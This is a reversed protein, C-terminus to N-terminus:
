AFNNTMGVILDGSDLIFLKKLLLDDDEVEINTSWEYDVISTRKACKSMVGFLLLLFIVIKM